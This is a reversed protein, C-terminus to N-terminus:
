KAGEAVALVGFLVACWFTLVALGLGLWVLGYGRPGDHHRGGYVVLALAGLLMVLLGWGVGNM